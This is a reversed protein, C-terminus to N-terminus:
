LIDDLFVDATQKGVSYKPASELCEGYAEADPYSFMAKYKRAGIDHLIEDFHLHHFPAVCNGGYVKAPPYVKRKWELLKEIEVEMEETSKQDVLMGDVYKVLWNAIMESSLVSCFSSNFGVFGINPLEPNVAFRFLRYLGDNDILKEKLNDPLFPLDLIWGTAQIVIDAKITEGNNLVLYKTGDNDNVRYCKITTNIPKICGTEFCEFLGETVSPLGCSVSDDIREKPVMGWKKLGLQFSLVCELMRFNLWILPMAMLAILKSFISAPAKWSPFQVEQARMFLLHKFNIGAVFYPIRWINRRYLMTVQHAGRQNAAHVAIDTSSKSGGLVVVRKGIVEDNTTDKYESSHKVIGGAEIFESQGPHVITKPNTFTGTCVVIFDFAMKYSQAKPERGNSQSITLVWGSKGDMRKEMNTVIAGFRFVSGLEHKEVYTHLYELV